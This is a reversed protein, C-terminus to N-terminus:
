QGSFLSLQATEVANPKQKGSLNKTFERQMENMLKEANSVVVSPLGANKAVHIGYSKSASGEVVKRLFEIKGDNESVTIRYNAIQPFKKPMVNLEHYHTSFITRAKIKQAIYAAVSWAIAVGDYTSTGRGIEDLLILSKETACNLIYATESMEVMFTSQGLTLDDGAGVRTFIKDAIGIHAFSAPVFSGTQAMIVILANQRMYTSKGAMNPGTLIMFKSDERDNLPFKLDNAIYTGSPIIKELVPHRGDKVILEGGNDVMPRVYDNEVAVTAFSLLVDIMALEQAAQKFSSAFEQGYERLNKFIEYETEAAKFKASSIETEFKKLEETIFREANTLTQRRVYDPPIKNLNSNTVEIFYGFTKSYGVKLNRIDTREREDNEMQLLRQEGGNMLGRFYDLEANVGEKVIGPDKASVPADECITREITNAFELLEDTNVKLSLKDNCFKGLLQKIAPLVFVSEKLSLMDRPNATANTLKIALREIDYIKSLLKSLEAAIDPNKILLEVADLRKNIEDVDKLPKVILNKLLRSGFNTKVRDLVWLLSGYKKKDRSSQLLELNAVTNADTLVYDTLDYSKIFDFKPLAERRTKVAYSAVAGAACFGVPFNSFGFAELSVTDFLEKLVRIANVEEFESPKTKTCKYVNTLSEPMDFVEEPVVQFPLIKQKKVPVLLEAPSIVSLETKINEFSGQTVKFEGTTIDTYALGFVDGKQIIAALWNNKQANVLNLSAITGPTIIETVGRKVLGQAESPNELQECIVTKINNELFRPVYNNFAKAPIGAMPVRGLNGADRSTLTIELAKSILVADEFFAEYFDGLRFMVVCDRYKSKVDLYQKMMPTVDEPNIDKTNITNIEFKTMFIILINISIEDFCM